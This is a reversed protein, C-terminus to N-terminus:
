AGKVEIMDGDTGRKVRVVDGPALFVPSDSGILCYGDREDGKMEDGTGMYEGSYLYGNDLTFAYAVAYRANCHGKAYRVIERETAARFKRTKM